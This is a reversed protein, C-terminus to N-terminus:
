HDNAQERQNISSARKRLFIQYERLAEDPAHNWNTFGYRAAIEDKAAQRIAIEEGTLRVPELNKLTRRGEEKRIQAEAASLEKAASIITRIAAIARTRARKRTM